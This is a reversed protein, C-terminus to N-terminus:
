ESNIEADLLGSLILISGSVLEPHRTAGLGDNSVFHSIKSLLMKVLFITEKLYCDM